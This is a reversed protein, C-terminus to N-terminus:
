LFAVALDSEILVSKQLQLTEVRCQSLIGLYIRAFLYQVVELEKILIHAVIYVALQFQQTLNSFEISGVFLKVVLYLQQGALATAHSFSVHSLLFVDSM